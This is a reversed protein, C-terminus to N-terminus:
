FYRLFAPVQAEMSLVAKVDDYRIIFIVAVSLFFLLGLTSHKQFKNLSVSSPALMEYNLTFNEVVM